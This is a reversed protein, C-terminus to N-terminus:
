IGLLYTSILVEEETTSYTYVRRLIDHPLYATPLIYCYQIWRCTWRVCTSHHGEPHPRGLVTGARYWPHRRACCRPLLVPRTDQSGPQAAGTSSWGPGILTAPYAAHAPARSLPGLPRRHPVLNFVPRAAPRPRALPKPRHLPLRAPASEKTETKSTKSTEEQENQKDKDPDTPDTSLGQLFAAAEDAM